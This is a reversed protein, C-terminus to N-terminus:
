PHPSWPVPLNLPEVQYTPCLDCKFEPREPEAAGAEM